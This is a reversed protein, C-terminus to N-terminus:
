PTHLILKGSEKAKVWYAKGPIISTTTKYGADYEFYSSQVNDVPDQIIDNVNVAAYVSGVLNWGSTV